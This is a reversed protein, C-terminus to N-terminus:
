PRTVSRSRSTSSRFARRRGARRRSRGPASSPRRRRARGRLRACAAEHRQFRRHGAADADAETAHGLDALGVAAPVPLARADFSRDEVGVCISHHASAAVRGFRRAQKAMMGKVLAAIVMLVAGGIGGSAVSSVVAASTWGAPRPSAWCSCSSAAWAAASSARGGFQRARRPEQGEDGRRGRQRRGRWEGAQHDVWDIAPDM